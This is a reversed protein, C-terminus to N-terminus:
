AECLGPGQFFLFSPSQTLPRPGFPLPKSEPSSHPRTPVRFLSKGNTELRFLLTEKDEDGTARVKSILILPSFSAPLASLPSSLSYNPITMRLIASSTLTAASGRIPHLGFSVLCISAALTEPFTSLLKWRRQPVPTAASPSSFFLVLLKQRPLLIPLDFYLQHFAGPRLSFMGGPAPQFLFIAVARSHTWTQLVLRTHRPFGFGGRRMCIIRHASM